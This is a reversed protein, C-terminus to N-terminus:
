PTLDLVFIVLQGSGHPHWPHPVHLPWPSGDRVGQYLLIGPVPELPAAGSLVAWDTEPGLALADATGPFADSVPYFTDFAIFFVLHQDEVYSFRRPTPPLPHCLVQPEEGMALLGAWLYTEPVM